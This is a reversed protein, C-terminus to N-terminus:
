RREKQGEHVRASYVYAREVLDLDAERHYTTLRDLIDTIRIM